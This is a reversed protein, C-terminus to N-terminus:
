KIDEYRGKNNCDEFYIFFSKEITINNFSLFQIEGGKVGPSIEQTFELDGADPIITVKTIDTDYDLSIIEFM